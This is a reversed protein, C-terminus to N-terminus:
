LRRADAEPADVGGVDGARVLAVEIVGSRFLARQLTTAPAIGPAFLRWGFVASGIAVILGGTLGAYAAAAGKAMWFGGATLAACAMQLLVVRMM